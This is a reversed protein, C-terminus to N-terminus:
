ALAGVGGLGILAPRWGRGAWVVPLCLVALALLVMPAVLRPTLAWGDLGVEWLAWVLTAVFLGGYVWVGSAERRCREMRAEVCGWGGWAGAPCLGRLALVATQAGPRPTRAWGELGGERLARVRTAGVLGAHKRVGSAKLRWRHVGAAVPALGALLYYFAGGLI